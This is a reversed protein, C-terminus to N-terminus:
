HTFHGVINYAAFAALYAVATMYTFQLV